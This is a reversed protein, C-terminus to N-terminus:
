KKIKSKKNNSKTAQKNILKEAAKEINKVSNPVSTSVSKPAPTPKSPLLSPLLSKAVNFIMGGPLAGLLGDIWKQNNLYGNALSKMIQSITELHNSNTSLVLEKSMANLVNDIIRSDRGAIELPILQSSSNLYVEFVDCVELRVIPAVTSIFTGYVVTYPQYGTWPEQLDNFVLSEINAFKLPASYCGDLERNVIANQSVNLASSGAIGMESPREGSYCQAVGLAGSIQTINSMDTIFLSSALTRTQTVVGSYSPYDPIAYGIYRSFPCNSNVPYNSPSYNVLIQNLILTTPYAVAIAPVASFSLNVLYGGYQKIAYGLAEGETGGFIISFSGPSITANTSYSVNTVVGSSNAVSLYLIIAYYASHANYGTFQVTFSDADSADTGNNVPLVLGKPFSSIGNWNYNLNGVLTSIFPSTNSYLESPQMYYCTGSTDKTFASHMPITYNAIGNAPINLTSPIIGSSGSHNPDTLSGLSNSTLNALVFSQGAFNSSSNIMYQCDMLGTHLVSLFWTNYGTFTVPPVLEIRSIQKVLGTAQAFGDPLRVPLNKVPDICMKLLEMTRSDFKDSANLLSKSRADINGIADSVSPLGGSFKEWSTALKWGLTPLNSELTYDSPLFRFMRYAHDLNETVCLTFFDKSGTDLLCFRKGCRVLLSISLKRCVTLLSNYDYVIDDIEFEFSRFLNPVCFKLSNM